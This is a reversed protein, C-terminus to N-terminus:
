QSVQHGPNNTQIYLKISVSNKTVHCSHPICFGFNMSHWPVRWGFLHMSANKIATCDMVADIAFLQFYDVHDKKQFIAVKELNHKTLNFSSRSAISTLFIFVLYKMISKNSNNKM